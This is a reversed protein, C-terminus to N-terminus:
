DRLKKGTLKLFVDELTPQKLQLNFLKSDCKRQHGFLAPLTKEADSIILRYGHDEDIAQDVGPLERFHDVPCKKDVQFTITSNVGSTQLLKQTTDLAIIKAHDMIAIRDCLIEAEEMYHTTIIITKGTKKINTVLDWLNHRAQPDLGTTPEDLFLVKPDNVLAAAISFRQKQGGSLEKFKFKSKESLQVIDLLTHPDIKRNYLSAFTTLLETLKLGDFFSSSQLQVGILSKVLHTEKTVDHGDLTAMGSTIPQLGEMMELTTTKGAGNPGLIGFTEGQNVEFTIDDVAKLDDFKKTLNKVEIISM